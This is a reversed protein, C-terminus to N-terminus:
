PKPGIVIRVTGDPLDKDRDISCEGLVEALASVLVSAPNRSAEDLTTFQNEFVTVSVIEGFANPPLPPISRSDMVEWGSRKLAGHMTGALRKGDPADEVYLIQARRSPLSRLGDLANYPVSRPGRLKKLYEVQRNAEAAKQEALAARANLEAVKEDSIQQLRIAAAEAKHAFHLELWVGGGIVFTAIVGAATEIWSKDKAFILLIVIDLALGVVIAQGSWGAWRSNRKFSGKLTEIENM